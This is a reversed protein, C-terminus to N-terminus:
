QPRMSQCQPLDATIQRPSCHDDLKAASLPTNDEGICNRQSNEDRYLEMNDTREELPPWQPCSSVDPEMRYDLLLVPGEMKCECCGKTVTGGHKAAPVGNLTESKRQRRFESHVTRVRCCIGPLTLIILAGLLFFSGSIVFSMSFDGTLDCLWGSIPPGLLGGVSELMQLLGLAPLVREGGVVWPLASFVGPTLAGACFGFVIAAAGIELQTAALPLLGLTVATLGTWLSLLHLTRKPSLDSLWGAFLRGGVDAVGVLAMLFAAQRDSIGKTRMHAVLHAFPVFYAANILTVALCYRLFAWHCLLEWGWLFSRPQVASAGNSVRLLAGCPVSHLAVGSLLLMAGRWSYEEVLFQLLPTLAFSFVGIGTLVFGTALSRRRSFYCTVAAMSPSFILAWGFGSVGGISLYLQYLESSFSALFMGFSSLFGGLVVVPRSGFRLTLACSLPSMLQQVAVACSTVWSVSGAPSGFYDVFEPFFIGFSRLTGFVLGAQLFCSALLVAGWVDKMKVFLSSRLTSIIPSSIRWQTRYSGHLWRWFTQASAPSHNVRGSLWLGVKSRHYSM